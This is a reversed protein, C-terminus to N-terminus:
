LIDLDSVTLGLNNFYVKFKDSDNAFNWRYNRQM